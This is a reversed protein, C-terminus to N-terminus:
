GHEAAVEPAAERERPQTGMATRRQPDRQVFTGAAVEALLRVAREPADPQVPRQRDFSDVDRGIGRALPAVEDPDRDERHSLALQIGRAEGVPLDGGPKRSPRAGEPSSGSPTATSKGGARARDIARAIM